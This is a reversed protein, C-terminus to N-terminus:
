CAHPARATGAPPSPINDLPFLLPVCVCVCECLGNVFAVAWTGGIGVNPALCQPGTPRGLVWAWLLNRRRAHPQPSQLRAIAYTIDHM